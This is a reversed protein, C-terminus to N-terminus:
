RPLTGASVDTSHRDRSAPPRARRKRLTLYDHHYDDAMRRVDYREEVRCRGAQALGRAFDGDTILRYLAEALATEDGSSFLLGTEGHEVLEPVGGVRSAVVPRGAVGAEIVAQPTGEARSTLAFIDFMHHYHQPDTTYGAFHVAHSVGLSEALRGLEDRLEGDGVIVLRASPVRTRLQAFGRILIDQRKIESLRGTTGIV